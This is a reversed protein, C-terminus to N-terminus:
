SITLQGDSQCGGGGGGRVEFSGGLDGQEEM